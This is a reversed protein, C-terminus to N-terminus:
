RHCTSCDTRSVIGYDKVLQQGVEIQNAPPQWAMDFVRDKPRVYKEPHRHCEVCWEMQLSNAQWTLAMQDVPGHCTSCGVGKSVHISHNFYVYDPLNHVRQWAIPKGTQWSARIPELVAANTWIQSHCNMCIQTAPIGAFSSTEVSTHCYRCDLGADTVHHKHSFPVPQEHPAGQQTWYPSRIFAFGATLVLGLALLGGVITAKAITNAGPHFIQGM